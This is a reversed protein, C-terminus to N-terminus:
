ILSAVASIDLPVELWLVNMGIAILPLAVNTPDAPVIEFGSGPPVNMLPSRPLTAGAGVLELLGPEGKSLIMIFEGDGGVGSTVDGASGFFGAPRNLFNLVDVTEGVFGPTQRLDRFYGKRSQTPAKNLFVGAYRISALPQSPTVTNTNETIGFNVSQISCLVGSKETNFFSVSAAGTGAGQRIQGACLRPPAAPAPDTIPYVPVIVEDLMPNYRGKFGFARQLTRTIQGNNLMKPM